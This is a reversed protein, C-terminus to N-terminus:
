VEVDYVSTTEEDEDRFVVTDQMSWEGDLDICQEAYELAAEETDREDSGKVYVRRTATITVDYAYVHKKLNMTDNM